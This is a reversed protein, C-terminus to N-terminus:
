SRARRFRQAADQLDVIPDPYDLKDRQPAPLEWPRHVAAGDVGALEPLYRRVYTGEPDLRDAQRLPNFMRNPRTDTGTGAVWQWNMANNAIDGDVLLDYFHQAGLRWDQYLTKVLFSGVILRARNHLYGERQLQRMGADVVPYGTRGARWADLAQQDQLWRDNRTRYDQYAAVPRAAMVQHHFDRWALQRVFAAAGAGGREATRVALETASLCGFHLYPSLRSTGDAALDDHLEGYRQVGQDLWALMRLRAQTEGGAPLDPSTPGACIEAQRPVAGCRMRPPLRLTAPPALPARRPQKEWQRLYPTFVAFHDKGNPTISGPAVVTVSDHKVLKRRGLADSLNDQRTQAYGSVDAAVHVEGADM